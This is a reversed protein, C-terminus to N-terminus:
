RPPPPGPPVNRWPQRLARLFKQYMAEHWRDIERQGATLPRGQHDVGALTYTMKGDTGIQRYLVSAIQSWHYTALSDLRRIRRRYTELAGLVIALVAVVVMIRRLTYRASFMVGGILAILLPLSVLIVTDVVM